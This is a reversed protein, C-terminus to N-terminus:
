ELTTRVKHGSGDDDSNYELIVLISEDDIMGGFRYQGVERLTELDDDTLEVRFKRTV